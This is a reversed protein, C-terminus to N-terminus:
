LPSKSVTTSESVDAGHNGGIDGHTVMVDGDRDDRITCLCLYTCTYMQTNIGRQVYMHLCSVVVMTFLVMIM